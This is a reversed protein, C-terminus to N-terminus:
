KKVAKLFAEELQRLFEMCVSEDDLASDLLTEGCWGEPSDGAPRGHKEFLLVMKAAWKDLTDNMLVGSSQLEPMEREQTM